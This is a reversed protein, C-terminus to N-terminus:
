LQTTMWSKEEISSSSSSTYGSAMIVDSDEYGDSNDNPLAAVFLYTEKTTACIDNTHAEPHQVVSTGVLSPRIVQLPLAVKSPVVLSPVSCLGITKKHRFRSSKNHFM